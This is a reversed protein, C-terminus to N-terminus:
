SGWGASATWSRAKWLGAASSNLRPCGSLPTGRLDVWRGDLGAALLQAGHKGTAVLLYRTYAADRGTMGTGPVLLSPYPFEEVRGHLHRVHGFEFVGPEERRQAAALLAAAALVAVAIVIVRLRFARAIDTPASPHYGVYFPDRDSTM